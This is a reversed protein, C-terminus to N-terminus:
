QEFRDVFIVDQHGDLFYQRVSDLLSESSNHIGTSYHGRARIWGNQGLPLNLGDLEWHNETPNFSGHGLSTFSQGDSSYEFTVRHFAPAAGGRLWSLRTGDAQITMQDFVPDPNSLRAINERDAGELRWFKGAALLKGDGQIALSSVFPGTFFPAQEAGPDFAQDLRGNAQLRILKISPIPDIFPQPSTLADFGGGAWVKGDARLAMSLVIDNLFYAGQNFSVDLAGNAELRAIHRVQDFNSQTFSGGVLIRGDPQLVISYVAGNLGHQFSTDLTGDSELRVLYAYNPDGNFQTFTGGVLIRGDAQVAISNVISNPGGSGFSSFFPDLNGDPLLRVLRNRPWTTTNRSLETFNGGVLISGDAQLALSRVLGNTQWHGFLLDTAGWPVWRSIRGQQPSIMDYGTMVISGNAQVAYATIFEPLDDPNPLFDEDLRGDPLIRVANPRDQFQDPADGHYFSEFNGGLLFRGDPQVALALVNAGVDSPDTTVAALMDTDPSGDPYIRRSVGMGSLLLKGDDQVLLTHSARSDPWQFSHDLSGDTNLRVMYDFGSGAIDTKDIGVLIRGDAQLDLTCTPSLAELTTHLINFTQDTDGDENLRILSVDREEGDSWAMVLLKGDHQRALACVSSADLDPPTFGPDNSGNAQLRYLRATFPGGEEERARGGVLAQGNALPLVASLFPNIMGDIDAPLFSSDLSGDTNLRVIARYQGDGTWSGGYGSVIAKGDDQLALIGAASSLMPTIGVDFSTDLTGDSNLRAVLGRWNPSGSEGISFEGAILIKGDPQPTVALVRTNTGIFFGPDTFGEDITGDPHIRVLYRRAQGGIQTFNGAVMIRGDPLLAMDHVRGSPFSLRFGDEPVQAPLSGVWLLMLAGLTALRLLCTKITTRDNCGSMVLEKILNLLRNM